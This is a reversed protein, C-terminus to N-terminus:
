LHYTPFICDFHQKPDVETEEIRMVEVRNGNTGRKMQGSTDAM